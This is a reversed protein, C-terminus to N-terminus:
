IVSFNICNASLLFFHKKSLYLNIVDIAAKNKYKNITYGLCTIMIEAINIVAYRINFFRLIFVVSYLAFALLRLFAKFIAEIYKDGYLSM